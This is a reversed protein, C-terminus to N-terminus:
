DDDLDRRMDDPDDMAPSAAIAEGTSAAISRSSRWSRSRVPAPRSPRADYPTIDPTDTFIDDVLTAAGDFQNLPPLGLLTFQLRMLSGFSALVPSVYGRKVWPSIFMLLSRHADVSDTGGQPDDETVIILMDDWWRSHSLREVLRGLALDNDAVYSERFPYGDEPHESTM